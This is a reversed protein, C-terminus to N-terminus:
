SKQCKVSASIFDHIFAVLMDKSQQKVWQPTGYIRNWMNICVDTTTGTHCTLYEYPNRKVEIAQNLAIQNMLDGYRDTDTIYSTFVKGIHVFWCAMYASDRFLASGFLHIFPGMKELGDDIVCGTIKTGNNSDTKFWCDLYSDSFVNLFYDVYQEAIDAVTNLIQWVGNPIQKVCLKLTNKCDRAICVKANTTLEWQNTRLCSRMRAGCKTEICDSILRLGPFEIAENDSLALIVLFLAPLCFKTMNDQWYNFIRKVLWEAKHM